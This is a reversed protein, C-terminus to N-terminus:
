KKTSSGVVVPSIESAPGDLKLEILTDIDKRYEKAVNIRIGLSDQRVEAQGGTLAKWSVIKKGVPPLVLGGEPWEFVHVYVSNGRYTSAGWAGPKFPGGRTGYITQGHAGLWQGIEKLRDVQRPEIRGDPM